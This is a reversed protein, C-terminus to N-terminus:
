HHINLYYKDRILRNYTSMVTYLEDSWGDAVSLYKLCTETLKKRMTQMKPQFNTQHEIEEMFQKDLTFQTYNNNQIRRCRECKCRFNYKDALFMRRMFNYSDLMDNSMYSVTLEEETQIPRITIAVISRDSTVLAVNPYCSHRFFRGVIPHVLTGDNVGTEVCVNSYRIACIHHGILHMLFRNYETSNLKDRFNENNMFAQHIRSIKEKIEEDLFDVFIVFM